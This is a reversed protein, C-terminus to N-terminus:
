KFEVKVLKSFRDKPTDIYIEVKYSSIFKEDSIDWIKAIKYDSKKDDIYISKNKIGQLEDNDLYLVLKAKSIDDVIAIPKAPTVFDGKRVLLKYLYKDKLIISKKSKKDISDQLKAQQLKLDLLQKKLSLIKEKISLYQTKAGSYAVFANDKQTKSATSLKSIRDYYGKQRQLSQSLTKAIDTNISIMDEIISISKQTDELSDIDIKDDIHVVRSNKVVMGEYSLNADVVLGSVSSSITVSDYPEVKAYHVKAVLLLPLLYLALVRIKL